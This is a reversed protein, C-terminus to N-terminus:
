LRVIFVNRLGMGELKKEIEGAQELSKSKSVHVKHLIKKTRPDEYPPTVNVYDYIVKLRDALRLANEKNEFAGVQVTFEGNRLDRVEVLPRTKGMSNWEGVQKALAIVQVDATGPGILDIERAAGYSLDIIRDKVFPGRDNVPVVTHKNNTLNVVKVYTALPLTKHAASKGYMNYTEGSATARGHFPEGYWSAKGVEVYGYPEPLPYYRIGNAQHPAPLVGKDTEQLVMTNPPLAPPPPPPILKVYQTDRACALLSFLALLVLFFRKKM